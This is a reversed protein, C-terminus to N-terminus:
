SAAGIARILAATAAEPDAARSVAAVVAVGHAGARMLETVRQRTVGGIAIVRVPSSEAVARIGSPGVPEPLGQKTTTPFVPGVGLYSAGGAHAVTAAGPARVTGGIIVTDALLRRAEAIPLDDAGLHVGDAGAAAAIDVRDDVVVMAGAPRALEIVRRTLELLQRDTAEKARVQVALPERTNAVAAFAGRLDPLPDRGGRTDTIVHLRPVPRQIRPRAAATAFAAASM